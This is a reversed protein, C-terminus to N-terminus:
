QSVSCKGVGRVENKCLCSFFSFANCINQMDHMLDFQVLWIFSCVVFTGHLEDEHYCHANIIYVHLHM